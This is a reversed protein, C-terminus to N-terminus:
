GGWKGLGLRFKTNMEKNKITKGLHIYIYGNDMLLTLEICIKIKIYKDAFNLSIYCIDSLYM